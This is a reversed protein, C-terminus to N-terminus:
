FLLQFQARVAVEGAKGSGNLGTGSNLLGPLAGNEGTASNISAQTANLAVVTDITLKAAQGAFYNNFGFTIFNYNEPRFLDNSTYIGDYKVFVEPAEDWRWSGQATVGYISTNGIPSDVFQGVGAVFLGFGGGKIQGDATAAFFKTNPFVPTAPPGITGAGRETEQYHAAAGIQASTASGPRSTYEALDAKSGEIVWNIRSTLAYEATDKPTGSTGGTGFGNGFDLYFDLTDNIAWSLGVAQSYGQSLYANVIGREAALTNGTSNLEEKLFNVKYQGGRIKFGQGLNYEAWTDTTYISSGTSSPNRQVPNTASTRDITSKGSASQQLQVRYTLDSNILNGSFDINVRRLQFAGNFDDGRVIDGTTDNSSDVDRFVGADGETNRYNAVYRFQVLGNIKLSYNGDPSRVVFGKDYGAVGGGQLLSSRTDADALMDAVMARVEDRSVGQDDALAVNSMAAGALLSLLLTKKM